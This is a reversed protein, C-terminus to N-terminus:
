KVAKKLQKGAKFRPVKKAAIKITEGTQPNRGTRAKRHAVMFTGFGTLTVNKGKSLYSTIEALIVNLCDNACKKSCKTKKALAEVLDIKTM